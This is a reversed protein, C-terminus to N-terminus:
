RKKQKTRRAAEECMQLATMFGECDDAPPLDDHLIYGYRGCADPWIETPDLKSDKRPGESRFFGCEPCKVCKQDYRKNM